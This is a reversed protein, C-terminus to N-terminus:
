ALGVSLRFCGLSSYVRFQTFERHIMPRADAGAPNNQLLLRSLYWAFLTETLCIFFLFASSSKAYWIDFFLMLLPCNIGFYQPM